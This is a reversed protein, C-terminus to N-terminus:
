QETSDATIVEMIDGIDCGLKNCIKVLVSLAVLENKDWSEKVNILQANDRYDDDNSLDNDNFLAAYQVANYEFEEVGDKVTFVMRELEKLLGGKNAEAAFASFPFALALFLIAFFIALFKKM